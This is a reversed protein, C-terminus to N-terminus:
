LDTRSSHPKITSGPVGSYMVLIISLLMSVLIIISKALGLLLAQLKKEGSTELACCRAGDLVLVHTM